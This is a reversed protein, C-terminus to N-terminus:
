NAQSAESDNSRRDQSRDFTLSVLTGGGPVSRIDIEGGHERVIQRVTPLGLGVGYTKTSFLPDFIRPLVDPPIGPGTDEVTLATKGGIRQMGLRLMCARGPEQERVPRMAQVANEVLNVIVRRFRDTDLSLVVERGPAIWEVDLWPPLEMDAVEARLWSELDTPVTKLARTRSFDLLDTVINDCRDVNRDIRDALRVLTEDPAAALKEKMSYLSARIAGLPNRLEHSVTATLQGLTALKEKRVLEDQARALQQEAEKRGSIDSFMGFAGTPEGQKDRAPVASVLAWMATGDFRRLRVEVVNSEGQSYQRFNSRAMEYDEPFLFDWASGARLTALDCRLMEAMRANAFRTQGKLDIEWVGENATEIISRYRAESERLAIEARKRGTLDIFMGLLATRGEWPVPVGILGIWVPEGDRRVGQYEFYPEVYENRKRKARRELFLPLDTEAIWDDMRLGIMDEPKDFGHLQAARANMDLITGELDITVTGQLSRDVISRYRAESERLAQEVQTQETVDIQVSQVAPQGEWMTPSVASTVWIETGDTRRGRFRTMSASIGEQQASKRRAAMRERDGPDVFRDVSEGILNAPSPLGYLRAAAMNAFRVVEDPTVVIIAQLSSDVLTRYRAESERLAQEAMRRATVDESFVQHAPAGKWNITRITNKVWVTSGDKKLGRFEYQAPANGGTQRLRHYGLLRPRDEPHVLLDTSELTLLEAPSDYGYLRAYAANVHLLKLNRQVMFGQVASDILDRYREESERLAQETRRRESIDVHACFIAPRGQWEVAQTRNEIIRSAGDRRLGVFEYHDPPAEGRLRRRRWDNLRTREAEAFLHEVEVGTMAQASEFGFIAAEEPNAFAVRDDQIVMIGQLSHNVLTRYRKESEELAQEAAKRESIDISIVQTAREGEWQIPRIFATTWLVRGDKHVLRSEYRAPAFEGRNRAEQYSRLRDLEEPHIFAATTGLALLEAPSVFGLQRAFSSNAFRLQQNVHILIGEPSNEILDRYRAESESLERTREGVRRELETNIDQLAEQARVQATIDLLTGFYRVRGELDEKAAEAVAHVTCERGDPREVRFTLDYGRRAERAAEMEQTVRDRDGPSIAGIFDALTPTPSSDLGSLDLFGDSWIANGGDADFAYHGIRALTEARRLRAEGDRLRQETFKRETIDFIFGAMRVARGQEDREAQGKSRVWIYDGHKRRLRLEVDYPVGTDLHRQAAARVRAMDDPHVRSRFTDVHDRLEGPQYGLMELWRPSFYEEGTDINWDWLGDNTGREARRLRRESEKLADEARKRATVDIHMGMLCPKGEWEIRAVSFEVWVTGGDSRVGKAEYRSPAEEGRLRADRYARVREVEQAALLSAFSLGAMAAGSPFGFIRADADNAFLITWDSSVVSIGQLSYDFNARYSSDSAPLSSMDTHPDNRDRRGSPTGSHASEGAQGPAEVAAQVVADGEEGSGSLSGDHIAMNRGLLPSDEWPPDRKDAGAHVSDNWAWGVWDSQQLEAEGDNRSPDFVPREAHGSVALRAPSNPVVSETRDPGITGPRDSSVAPGLGKEGSWVKLKLWSLLAIGLGAVCLGFLYFSLSPILLTTLKQGVEVAPGVREMRFFSLRSLYLLVPAPSVLVVAILSVRLAANWVATRHNRATAALDGSVAGAIPSPSPIPNGSDTGDSRALQM